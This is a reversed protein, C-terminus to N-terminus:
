LRPLMELNRCNAKLWKSGHLHKLTVREKIRMKDLKDDNNDFYANKFKERRKIKHFQKSKIRKERKCKAEYKSLLIRFRKLEARRMRAEELSFKELAKQETFSLETDKFDVANENESVM